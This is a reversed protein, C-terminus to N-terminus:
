QGHGDYQWAADHHRNHGPGQPENGSLFDLVTTHRCPHSNPSQKHNFGGIFKATRTSVRQLRLFTRLLKGGGCQIHRLGQSNHVRLVGPNARAWGFLRRTESTVLQPSVPQMSVSRQDRRNRRRWHFPRTIKYLVNWAMGRTARFLSFSLSRWLRAAMSDHRLISFKRSRTLGNALLRAAPRHYSSPQGRILV